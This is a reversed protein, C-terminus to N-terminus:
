PNLQPYKNLFREDVLVMESKLEKVVLAQIDYPRLNFCRGLAPCRIAITVNLRGMFQKFEIPTVHQLHPQPKAQADFWQRDVDDFFRMDLYAKDGPSYSTIACKNIAVIAKQSKVATNRLPFLYPISRVYDQFQQSGALDNNFPLDFTELDEFTVNFSMSRRIHPNGGFYNISKVFVQNQDLRAIDLAEEPSGIFPKLRSVHFVHQTNLNVHTCAVDNQVQREVTYPGTYTPSLKTPLHDSPQERPNFLVTDGPNYTPMKDNAGRRAAVIEGQLKLSIARVAKLNSDLERLLAVNRLGPDLELSLEDPLRFYRADESGYKLEFPTYGGTESTPYSCLMFNILPLVTDDSWNNHIREDSVLAKLHRTFQKNIGECGNSEHRGVISVKNSVQLWKNLKGVVESVLLATGPDSIVEDFVGFTCFHKFLVRAVSDATYDKAPYAQPFHSFHEVVMIVCKNGHKDPPTIALHDIGIRKRYTLPKLTLTRAPLAKIGTDRQKQCMPCVRVWERVQQVTFTADPYLQKAKWWTHYAGFHLARGGHVSRMIDEFSTTVSTLDAGGKSAQLVKLDGESTPCGERSLYDAVRNERGPIHRVLLDYSQLLARWRVVIPAQATEIWQLNRHDTEVLFSKGRLYYSFSHVGHYIGYAERKYTDWKSAPDSFRKATFGIPENVITGDSHVREQFLVAGVAYESADTRLVWKLSYDPFHLTAAEGIQKKFREFHAKYDYTWTSVDWDFKAHTMEYLKAAWESFDPVHHHFFLAAGLFSQMGKTNTPFPINSIADKRAQSLEWTGHKVRYGFFEVEKVGIWSKKMKLVIGFERCRELMKELKSYADEYSDALVLFNDFIVITWDAFDAFIERVLNQLLGSAPGVGEPLFRPRVLKWPTQVSLLDSFEKDLPIQHFSNSMDLDVYYKFESAKILEHSVIPIPQQPIKIYKNVVRYDGCFRIFPATAKPAIVLPSAIPSSSEVYFYKMLRDFELRASDYLGPRVPRAKTNLRDPLEGVIELSVPKVKMGNWESPAFTEQAQVTSLLDVVQPVAKLMEESVHSGIQGLYEKRSEEISTEMFALTTVDDSISLPDPTEEEEPCSEVPDKWAGVVDGAELKQGNALTVNKVIVEMSTLTAEVRGDSHVSGYRPSSIYELSAGTGGPLSSYIIKLDPDRAIRAKAKLYASLKRRGKAVLKRLTSLCPDRQGLEDDFANTIGAFDTLIRESVDLTMVKKSHAGKRLIREFYDYFDGLISPLGIIVDSGLSEVVYFTTLVPAELVGYDDYLAVNVDVEETVDLRTKGDGLKVQHEVQRRAIPGLRTIAEAGIYNGSSAGTDMTVKDAYANQGKSYLQAERVVVSKNRARPLRDYLIRYLENKVVSEAGDAAPNSRAPSNGLKERVQFVKLSASASIKPPTRRAGARMGVRVAGSSEIAAAVRTRDSEVAAIQDSIGGPDWIKTAPFAEAEGAM